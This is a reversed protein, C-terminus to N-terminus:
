VDKNNEFMEFTANRADMTLVDVKYALYELLNIRKDIIMVLDEDSISIMIKQYNSNKCLLYNNYAIRFDEQGASGRSLIIGLQASNSTMIDSLKHFYTNSPTKGKGTSDLENKCEVIFYPTMYKMITPFVISSQPFRMTCDFQNTFTRIKSTGSINKIQNFLFLSLRELADGKEKKTAFPGNLELKLQALKKYASEAPHYYLEFIEKPRKELSDAWSFNRESERLGIRKAIEQQIAAEPVNPNKERSYVIVSNEYSILFENGCNHCYGVTGLIEIIEEADFEGYFFECSENNCLVVYRKKLIGEKVAFEMITDALSYKVEFRSAVASVSITRAEQEPLTTLWFDFDTVFNEDIVDTIKLFQRYFM